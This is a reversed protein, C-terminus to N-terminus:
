FLLFVMVFWVIDMNWNSYFCLNTHTAATKGSLASFVGGWIGINKSDVGMYPRIELDARLKGQGKLPDRYELKQSDVGVYPRIEM